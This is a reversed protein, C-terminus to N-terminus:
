PAAPTTSDTKGGADPAAPQTRRVRRPLNSGTVPPLTVWESDAAKAKEATSRPTACGSFTLLLVLAALVPKRMPRLTAAPSFRTWAM